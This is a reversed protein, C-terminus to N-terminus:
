NTIGTFEPFETRLKRLAIDAGIRDMLHILIVASVATINQQPPIVAAVECEDWLALFDIQPGLTSFIQVTLLAGSGIITALSANPVTSTPWNEYLWRALSINGRGVAQYFIERRTRDSGYRALWILMERDDHDLAYETIQSQLLSSWSAKALDAFLLAGALGYATEPPHDQFPPIKNTLHWILVSEVSGRQGEIDDRGRQGGSAHMGPLDVIIKILFTRIAPPIRAHHYYQHAAAEFIEIWGCQRPPHHSFLEYLDDLLWDVDDWEPSDVIVALMPWWYESRRSVVGILLQSRHEKEALIVADVISRPIRDSAIESWHRDVLAFAPRDRFELYLFVDNLLENPLNM